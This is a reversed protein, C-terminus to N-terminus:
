RAAFGYWTGDKAKFTAPIEGARSPEFPALLGKERLRLTNLIENNWFLDCRPQGAEAIILNTLGVTKTSEVDFKPLVRVGSSQGYAKLIPQSFERDLASYVVVTDAAMGRSISGVFSVLALVFGRAVTVSRLRSMPPEM